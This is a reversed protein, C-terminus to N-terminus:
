GEGFSYSLTVHSIGPEAPVSTMPFPRVVASSWGDTDYRNTDLTRMGATM